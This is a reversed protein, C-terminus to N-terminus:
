TREDDAQLLESLRDSAVERRVAGAGAAPKIKRNGKIKFAGALKSIM